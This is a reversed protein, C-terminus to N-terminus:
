SEKQRWEEQMREWEEEIKGWSERMAAVRLGMVEQHARQAITGLEPVVQVMTEIVVATDNESLMARMVLACHDALTTTWPTKPTRVLKLIWDIGAQRLSREEKDKMGAKEEWRAKVESLRMLPGSFMNDPWLLGDHPGAFPDRLAILPDPDTDRVVEGLVIADAAMERMDILEPNGNNNILLTSM